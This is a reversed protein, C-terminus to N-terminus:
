KIQALIGLSLEPYGIGLQCMANITREDLQLSLIQKTTLPKLYIGEMREIKLNALMIEQTLSNVTYYRKHGQEIDSDSLECLDKLLGAYYGLRRNMAEGNPVTVFINGDRALYKRLINLIISPNEVHELVFGAVIVDFKDNVKYDEFYTEVIQTKSNPWKKRYNDIVAPSGELVIHKAYHKSFIQATIGHGLGFELISSAGPTLEVIRKPYWNLIINNDYDYISNGGYAIAHEDLENKM